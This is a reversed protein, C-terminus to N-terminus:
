ASTNADSRRDPLVRGMALARVQARQVLQTLELAPVLEAASELVALTIELRDDDGIGEFASTVGELGRVMAEVQWRASAPRHRLHTAVQECFRARDFAQETEVFLHFVVTGGAAAVAVRLDDEVDAEAQGSLLAALERRRLPLFVSILAKVNAANVAV